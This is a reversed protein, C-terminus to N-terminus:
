TLKVWFDSIIANRLILKIMNNSLMLNGNLTWWYFEIFAQRLASYVRPISFIRYIVLNPPDDIWLYFRVNKVLQFLVFWKTNTVLVNWSNELLNHDKFVCFSWVFVPNLVSRLWVSRSKHLEVKCLFVPNKNSHHTRVPKTLCYNQRPTM